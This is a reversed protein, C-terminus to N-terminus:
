SRRLASLMLGILGLGALLAIPTIPPLSSAAETLNLVDPIPTETPASNLASLIEGVNPAPTYTPLRMGGQPNLNVESLPANPDVGVPATLVRGDATPMVTSQADQVASVGNLVSESSSSLDLSVVTLDPILSTDGFLQVLEDYVYGLGNPSNPFRFQIWRYYRGTVPYREGPAIVGLIESNPDAERRVNIREQGEAVGVQVPGIPTETATPTYTPTANSGLVPLPTPSSLQVVVPTPSPAQGQAPSLAGTVV